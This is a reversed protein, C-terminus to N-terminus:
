DETFIGFQITITVFLIVFQAKQEQRMNLLIRKVRERNLKIGEQADNNSTINQKLVDKLLLRNQYTTVGIVTKPAGEGEADPPRSLYEERMKQRTSIERPSDLSRM